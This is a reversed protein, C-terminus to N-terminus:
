CQGNISNELSNHIGCVLEPPLVSSRSANKFRPIPWSSSYFVSCGCCNAAAIALPLSQIQISIICFLSAFFQTRVSSRPSPKIIRRCRDRRVQHHPKSTPTIKHTALLKRTPFFYEGLPDHFRMRQWLRPPFSSARNPLSRQHKTFLLQLFFFVSVSLFFNTFYSVSEKRLIHYFLSVLM